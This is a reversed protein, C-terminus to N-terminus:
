EFRRADGAGYRLVQPASDVFEIVTTPEPRIPGADLVVDVQALLWAPFDAVEGPAFTDGSPGPHVSTAADPDFDDLWPLLLTSSLLPEGLAEVLAHAVPYDPIRM